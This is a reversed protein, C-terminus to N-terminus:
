EAYSAGSLKHSNSLETTGDDKKMYSIRRAIFTYAKEASVTDISFGSGENLLEVGYITVVANQGYENAFTITIDFPLIEDAYAADANKDVLDGTTQVTSSGDNSYSGNTMARDWEDISTYPTYGGIDVSSVNGKFKQLKNMQNHAKFEELLADRNFVTFVLTGAIGRKGRSFSRPEPSGLTYIPAKEKYELLIALRIVGYQSCM